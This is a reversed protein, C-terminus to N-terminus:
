QTRRYTIELDDQWTENDFSIKSQGAMTDDDDEFAVTLRQSFEPADSGAADRAIEWGDDTVQFEYVRHVGRSDFYHWQLGATDGIISISDPFDPHDNQARFILFRDGELWQVDAAGSVTTGPLEPHTAETTWSGVLRRGLRELDASM